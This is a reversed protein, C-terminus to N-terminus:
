EIYMDSLRLRLYILGERGGDIVEPARLLYEGLEKQMKKKLEGEAYKIAEEKTAIDEGIGFKIPEYKNKM